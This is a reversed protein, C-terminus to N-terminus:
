RSASLCISGIHMEFNLKHDLTVDLAKLHNSLLIDHGQASLTMPQTVDKGLITGQFKSHNADMYTHEFCGIATNTDLTVTNSCMRVFFLDNTFVNFSLPGLLSGQPVDRNTTTLQSRYGLLKVLQLRNKLYRITLNCAAPSVNYAHSKSILLANSM